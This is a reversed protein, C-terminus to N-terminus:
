AHFPQREDYRNSAGDAQPEHHRMHHEGQQDPQHHSGGDREIHDHRRGVVNVGLAATPM